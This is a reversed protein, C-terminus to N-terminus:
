AEIRQSSTIKGSTIPVNLDARIFVKKNKLDFDQLQNMKSFNNPM